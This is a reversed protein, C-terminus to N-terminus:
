FPGCTRFLPRDKTPQESQEFGTLGAISASKWRGTAQPPQGAFYSLPIFTVSSVKPAPDFLCMDTAGGAIIVTDSTATGCRAANLAWSSPVAIQLGHFNVPRTGPAMARSPFPSPQSVEAVPISSDHSTRASLRVIVVAGLLCAVIVPVLVVRASNSHSSVRPSPTIQLPTARAQAKIAASRATLKSDLQDDNTGMAIRWYQRSDLALTM